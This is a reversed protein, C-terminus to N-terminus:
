FWHHEGHLYFHGSHLAAIMHRTWDCSIADAIQNASDEADM